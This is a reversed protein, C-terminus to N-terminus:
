DGRRRLLTVPMKPTPGTTAAVTTPTVPSMSPERGAVAEGRELAGGGM